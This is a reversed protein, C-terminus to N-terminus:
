QDIIVFKGKEKPLSNIWIKGRNFVIEEGASNYYRTRDTRSTKKWKGDIIKGDMLIKVKGQGITTIIVRGKGDYADLLSNEEIVVTKATVIKKTEHDIDTVGGVKHTYLNTNRDYVWETDYSGGNNMDTRYTVKVRTKKGRLEFNADRKFKLSETKEPFSNWDKSEGIEWANNISTYENHPAVRESSRWAGQTSIDKIKYTYINGCANTRPDTTQACGDHIFIPDFPSLWELFYQRASRIPGAIPTGDSWFIAMYRTIGSETVAEYVIDADNLGSQPRGETHNNIMVVVPRRKQLKAMEAKTFLTGNLPNVETKPVKIASISIPYISKDVIGGEVYNSNTSIIKAPSIPVKYVYLYLYFISFVSIVISVFVISIFVKNELLFKLFKNEGTKTAKVEAQIDKESITIENKAKELPVKKDKKATEM